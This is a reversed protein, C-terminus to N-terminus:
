RRPGPRPGPVRRGRDRCSPRTCRGRGGARGVAVRGGARGPGPGVRGWCAPAEGGGAVAVVVLVVGASPGGRALRPPGPGRCPRCLPGGGVLRRLRAAVMAAGGPA